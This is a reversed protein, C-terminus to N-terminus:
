ERRDIGVTHCRRLIVLLINLHPSPHSHGLPLTFSMRHRSSTHISDVLKHKHIWTSTRKVLWSRSGVTQYEITKEKEAGVFKCAEGNVVVVVV